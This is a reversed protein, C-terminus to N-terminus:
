HFYSAGNIDIVVGSLYSADESLLFAATAACDEPTAMRDLPIGALIEPLRDKMGERAMATEVWGPAIGFFGIKKPALEVALSRTLNILGAKSAAYIAAGSEGRFGVRSCVNLVKGGGHEAFHKCAAKMLLLPSEFNVAFTKHLNASFSAQGSDLFDIPMYVGANNVLAHLVGDKVVNNLLTVANKPDSLDAKYLGSCKKGLVRRTGEAETSDAMYHLAVSWGDNALRIAIARGIGRSSGTVLVRKGNM